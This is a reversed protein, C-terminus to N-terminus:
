GFGLPWPMGSSSLLKSCVQSAGLGPALGGSVVGLWGMIKSAGDSDSDSGVCVPGQVGGGQSVCEAVGVDWGSLRKRLESVFAAQLEAHSVSPATGLM